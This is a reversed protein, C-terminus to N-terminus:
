ATMKRTTDPKKEATTNKAESSNSFFASKLRLWSKKQTTYKSNGVCLWRSIVFVLEVEKRTINQTINHVAIAHTPRWRGRHTSLCCLSSFFVKLLHFHVTAVKRERSREREGWAKEHV